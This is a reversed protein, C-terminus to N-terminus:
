FVEVRGSAPHYAFGRHEIHAAGKKWFGSSAPIEYHCYPSSSSADTTTMVKAELKTESAAREKVVANMDSVRTEGSFAHLLDVCDQNSMSDSESPKDALRYPYGVRGEHESLVFAQEGYNVTYIVRGFSRMAQAHTQGQQHVLNATTRFAHVMYNFQVTHAEKLISQWLPYAVAFTAGLLVLVVSRQFWKDNLRVSKFEM